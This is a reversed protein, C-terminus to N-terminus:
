ARRWEVIDFDDGTLTWRTPLPRGLVPWDGKAERGCRLRVAIRADAADHEHVLGAPCPEEPWTPYFVPAHGKNPHWAPENATVAM